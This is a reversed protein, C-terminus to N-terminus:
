GKLKGKAERAWIYEAAYAGMVANRKQPINTDFTQRRVEDLTSTEYVHTWMFTRKLGFTSYERESYKTSAMFAFRLLVPTAM